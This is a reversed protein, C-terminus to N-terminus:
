APARGADPKADAVAPETGRDADRRARGAIAASVRPEARQGGCARGATDPSSRRRSPRRIPVAAPAAEASPPADLPPLDGVSKEIDKRVDSSRISIRRLGDGERGHRRGGEQPRDIEAERMAEQFQDQFEAAMRRIKGM